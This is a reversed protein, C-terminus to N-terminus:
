EEGEDEESTAEINKKSSAADKRRGSPERQVGAGSEDSQIAVSSYDPRPLSEGNEKLAIEIEPLLTVLSSFQDIPM